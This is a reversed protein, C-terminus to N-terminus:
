DWTDWRPLGVTDALFSDQDIFLCGQVLVLEIVHPPVPHLEPPSLPDAHQSSLSVAAVVWKLAGGQIVQYEKGLLALELSESYGHAWRLHWCMKLKHNFPDQM